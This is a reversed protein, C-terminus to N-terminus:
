RPLGLVREGLINKQIEKTGSAITFSLSELYRRTWEGAELGDAGLIDLALRGVRQRLEGYFVRNVAGILDLRADASLADYGLSRIAAAQARVGALERAIRTDGLLDRQRAVAILREVSRIVELRMSLFGMGREIALTYMAVDWGQHLGGVVNTVPVRVDDYFCECFGAEGDITRIRRVTLGPTDM